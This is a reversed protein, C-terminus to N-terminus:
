CKSYTTVSRYSKRPGEVDWTVTWVPWDTLGYGGRYWDAGCLHETAKGGAVPDFDHFPRGDAFLVDIRTGASRWLYTREAAFRQEGMVLFGRETYTAGDQTAVIEAEGEFTSSAKARADEIQRAVKYRGVYDALGRVTVDDSM